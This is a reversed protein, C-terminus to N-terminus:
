RGEVAPRPAASRRMATAAVVFAAGLIAAAILLAQRYGAVPDTTSAAGAAAAGLVALGISGGVQQGAQVLASSIGIDEPRIASLAALTLPVLAAGLGAGLVITAAVISPYSSHATLAVALWGAGGAAILPGGIAGVRAGVRTAINGFIAAAMGIALALPLFGLGAKIASYRLVEQFFLMLFFTSGYLCAGVALTVVYAASRTRDAFLRLPVLPQATRAAV